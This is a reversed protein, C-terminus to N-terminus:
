PRILSKSPKNIERRKGQRRIGADEVTAMVINKEESLVAEV